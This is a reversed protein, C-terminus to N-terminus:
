NVMLPPPRPGRVTRFSTTSRQTPTTLRASTTITSTRVARQCVLQGLAYLYDERARQHRPRFVECSNRIERRHATVTAELEENLKSLEAYSSILRARASPLQIIKTPQTTM